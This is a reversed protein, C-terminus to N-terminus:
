KRMRIMQWFKCATREANWAAQANRVPETAEEGGSLSLFHNNLFYVSQGSSELTMQLLLPPRSFLAEDAGENTVLEVTAQDGRVLYGVDIGRSDFGEILYPEYGYDALAELELLDELVGINEVEQLGIVTPAGLRQIADALKDLRLHYDARSPREPSSPHPDRHDFLNEVNFTAVSFQNEGIEPLSPLEMVEGYIQPQEIPEIKYNDFTFALPGVIGEVFNGRAVAYPLTSQDEHRVSSGDDVFIRIGTDDTRAVSDVGWRPNVLVYEGYQTTAAIVLAPETLAVLMGELSENYLLAETPDQPPDYPLAFPLENESSLVVIQEATTPYLTTQGSLERVRGTIQILDGAAVPPEFEDALVFIGSSTSESDDTAVEQLWFGSLEPFVGTVVGETAADSNVYPSRFGEGQIAWIPVGTGVFTRFPNTTVPDPWQDAVATVEGLVVQQVAGEFAVVDLTLEVAAGNGALEDIQWVIQEDAQTGGAGIEGITAGEPLSTTINLNTLPDPTHNVATIVFAMEGGAAVNNPGSVSLMLEPPFIEAIDTQLRPKLQRVSSYFESIGTIRYLKGVEMLEATVGTDKEIYVLTTNGEADILDVEFSFSFEEIRTATGELQNLKGIIADNSENDAATIVSPAPEDASGVVEINVEFDEPVVEVSDRYIEIGGTVRVVDGIDVNVAGGGGPVYVQVGGTEDELYFKTGTSGAFFGGTYMTAVGEVTVVSGELERAAAIPVSGGAVSILQPAAFATM